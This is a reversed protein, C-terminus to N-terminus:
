YPGRAEADARLWTLMGFVADSMEAVLERLRGADIPDDSQLEATVRELRGMASAVLARLQRAAEIREEFQNM